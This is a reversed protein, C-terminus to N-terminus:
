RIAAATSLGTRIFENVIKPHTLPLMHGGGPVVVDPHTLRAPLTRDMEGHIHLVPVKRPSHRPRWGLVAGCAWRLFTSKPNALHQLRRTVTRSMLVSSIRAALGAVMGLRDSGFRAFPWCVRWNRPLERPSRVSCILLCVRAQLLSAMELAVIGGFSAGGLVCARGPDIRRAFRIAYARLSEGPRPEVWPPVFLNPFAERQPEFMREDAGMGPLLILPLDVSKPERVDTNM